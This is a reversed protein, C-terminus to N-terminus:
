KNDKLYNNYMYDLYEEMDVEANRGDEYYYELLQEENAQYWEEYTM